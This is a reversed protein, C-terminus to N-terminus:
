RILKKVQFVCMFVLSNGCKSVKGGEQLEKSSWTRGPVRLGDSKLQEPPHTETPFKENTIGQNPKHKRARTGKRVDALWRTKNQQSTDTQTDQVNEVSHDPRTQTPKTKKNIRLLEKYEPQQGKTLKIYFLHRREDCDQRKAIFNGNKSILIIM